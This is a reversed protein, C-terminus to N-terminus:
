WLLQISYREFLLSFIATYLVSMKLVTKFIGKCHITKMIMEKSKEWNEDLWCLMLVLKETLFSGINWTSSVYNLKAVIRKSLNSSVTRIDKNSKNKKLTTKLAFTLLSYRCFTVDSEILFLRVFISEFNCIYTM